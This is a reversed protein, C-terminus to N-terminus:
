RPRCPRTSPPPSSATIGPTTGSATTASTRPSSPLSRPSPPQYFKRNVKELLLGRLGANYTESLPRDLIKQFNERLMPHEAPLGAHVLTLLVLELYKQEAIHNNPYKNLLWKMGKDIAANVAKADVGPDPPPAPNNQAAAFSPVVVFLALGLMRNM